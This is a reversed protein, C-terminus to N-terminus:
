LSHNDLLSPLQILIALYHLGALIEVHNHKSYSLSFQILRYDEYPIERQIMTSTDSTLQGFLSVIPHVAVNTLWEQNEFYYPRM